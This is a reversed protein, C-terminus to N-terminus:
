NNVAPVHYEENLPNYSQNSTQDREIREKIIGEVCVKLWGKWYDDYDLPKVTDTLQINESILCVINNINKDLERMTILRLIVVFLSSISILDSPCVTTTSNVKSLDSM